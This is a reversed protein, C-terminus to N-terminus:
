LSVLHNMPGRGQGLPEAREIACRVYEKARRVAEQIGIRHALNCAIATAFACGTGHTARSEIKAGRFWTLTQNVSLLDAPQDLHGGTVVVARSGLKHLREAWGVMELEREEQRGGRSPIGCLAAAEEINPTVVDAVRLLRERLVEEGRPDLLAAGSSSRLVPDLVVNIPRVTELFDAVVEAVAGNALMGIRVASPPLDRVLEYLTDRVIEERVAEVAFVRETTQVTLATVCTIAYCKHAISTKIDATIGAGSSPDYGAISLIIPTNAM